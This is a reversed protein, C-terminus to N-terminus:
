EPFYRIVGAASQSPAEALNPRNDIIRWIGPEKGIPLGNLKPGLPEVHIEKGRLNRPHRPDWCLRSLLRPM